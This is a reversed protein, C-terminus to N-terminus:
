NRDAITNTKEVNRDGSWWAFAAGGSLALGIAVSFMFLHLGRKPRYKSFAPLTAPVKNPEARREMSNVEGTVCAGRHVVIYPASIRGSVVASARLVIEETAIAEGSLMGSIEVRAAKAVGHFEGGRSISLSSCEVDAEGLAGDVFISGATQFKGSTRVGLGIVIDDTRSTVHPDVPARAASTSTVSKSDVNVSSM